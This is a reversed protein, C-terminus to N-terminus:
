YIQRSPRLASQPRQHRPTGQLFVRLPSRSLICRRLLLRWMVVSRTCHFSSKNRPVLFGGFGLAIASPDWYNRWNRSRQIHRKADDIKGLGSAVQAISFNNVAYEDARSVARAYKPTILGLSLRDPLAGRGEKTQPRITEQFMTTPRLLKLTRSWPRIGMM